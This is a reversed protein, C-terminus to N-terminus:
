RTTGQGPSEPFSIRVSAAYASNIGATVGQASAFETGCWRPLMVSCYSNPGFTYRTRGPLPAADGPVVAASHPPGSDSASLSRTVAFNMGIALSMSVLLVSLLPLLRGGSALWAHVVAGTRMM